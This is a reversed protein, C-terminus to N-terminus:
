NSPTTDDGPEGTMSELTTNLEAIQAETLGYKSRFYTSASPMPDPSAQWVADFLVEVEVGLVRALVNLTEGHPTRHEGSELRLLTSRNIGTRKALEYVSLGAAERLHRVVDGLVDADTNM